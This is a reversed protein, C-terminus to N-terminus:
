AKVAVAKKTGLGDRATKLAKKAAEHALELWVDAIEDARGQRQGDDPRSDVAFM